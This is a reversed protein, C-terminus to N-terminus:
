RRTRGSVCGDGAANGYGFPAAFKRAASAGRALRRAAASYMIDTLVASTVFLENQTEFVVREDGGSEALLKVGRPVQVGAVTDPIMDFVAVGVAPFAAQLSLDLLNIFETHYKEVIQNLRRINGSLQSAFLLGIVSGIDPDEPHFAWEPTYSQALRAIQERLDSETRPDIRFESAKSM